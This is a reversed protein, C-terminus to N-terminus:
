INKTVLDQLSLSFFSLVLVSVLRQLQLQEYANHILYCKNINYAIHRLLQIINSNDQLMLQSAANTETM